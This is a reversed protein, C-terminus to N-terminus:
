VVRIHDKDVYLLAIPDGPNPLVSRALDNRTETAEDEIVLGEPARVRYKVTVRYSRSTGGESNTSTHWRGWASVVQGLLLQGNKLYFRRRRAGFVMVLILILFISGFVGGIILVPVNMLGGTDVFPVEMDTFGTANFMFLTFGLSAALIVIVLLIVGNGSRLTNREGTLYKGDGRRLTFVNALQPGRQVPRGDGGTLEVPAASGMTDSWVFTPGVSISVGDADRAAQQDARNDAVFQRRLADEQQSLADGSAFGSIGIGGLASRPQASSSPTNVSGGEGQVTIGAEALEKRALERLEPDPDQQYVAMFLPTLQDGGFRAAMGLIMKRQALPLKAFEGYNPIQASM